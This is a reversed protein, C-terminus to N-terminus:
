AAKRKGALLELAANVQKSRFERRQRDPEDRAHDPHNAVRLADGVRKIDDESADLEVGLMQCAEVLTRPIAPPLKLEAKVVSLPDTPFRVLLPSGDKRFGTVIVFLDFTRDVARIRVLDDVHLRGNCAPTDVVKKWFAAQFVNEIRTGEPAIAMFSCWPVNNSSQFYVAAVPEIPKSTM